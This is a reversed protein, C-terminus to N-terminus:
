PACTTLMSALADHEAQDITLKYASKVAIWNKSYTCWYTQVAPKWKAPDQDGKARNTTASAAILQSGGLDNALKKRDDDTWAAAGSRWAEALPVTHDIDIAGADTVTLGDYPSIWTGEVAKCEKDSKVNTGQKQLVIERTDCSNGQSAWHPFRDRSYGTMKGEPAITLAALQAASEGTAVPPTSAPPQKDRDLFWALAALVIVIVLSTLATAKKRDM